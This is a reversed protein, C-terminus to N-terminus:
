KQGKREINRKIGETGNGGRTVCAWAADKPGGEGAVRGSLGRLSRYRQFHTQFIHSTGEVARGESAIFPPPDHSRPLATRRGAPLSARWPIAPLPISFHDPLPICTPSIYVPPLLSYDPLSCLCPFSSRPHCLSASPPKAPSYVASNCPFAPFCTCLHFIHDPLITCVPSM